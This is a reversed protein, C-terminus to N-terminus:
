MYLGLTKYYDIKDTAIYFYNYINDKNQQDHSICSGHRYVQTYGNEKLLTDIADSYHEIMIFPHYNSITTLAGQLVYLDHGEADLKIVAIKDTKVAFTDKALVTDVTAIPSEFKYINFTNVNEKYTNKIHNFCRTAFLDAREKYAQMDIFTFASLGLGNCVPTYFNCVGKRNSLGCMRYDYPFSSKKQIRELHKKYPAIPEFSIVALRGGAKWLSTASYGANAGIDLFTENPDTFHKFVLYDNDHIITFYHDVWEIKCDMEFDDATLHDLDANEPDYSRIIDAIQDVTLVAKEPPMNVASDHQSGNQSDHLVAGPMIWGKIKQRASEPLIRFLRRLLSTM